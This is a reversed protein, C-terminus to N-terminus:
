RPRARVVLVSCHAHRVVSDSVSGLLARRAGSRGRSGVAVLDADLEEALAVIQRDARGVRLHEATVGGGTAKIRKVESELLERAARRAEDQYAGPLPGAPVGPSGGPVSAYVGRDLAAGVYVAHLESGTQRALDATAAAALRAEESGDTALLIRAPFVVAKWRVVMVPCPADRVV